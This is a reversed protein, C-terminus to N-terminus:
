DSQGNLFSKQVKRMDLEDVCPAGPHSAILPVSNPEPVLQPVSSWRTTNQSSSRIFPQRRLKCLANRLAKNELELTKYKMKMNEAATEAYHVASEQNLITANSKELKDAVDTLQQALDMNARQLNSTTADNDIIPKSRTDQNLFIYDEEYSKLTSVDQLFAQM